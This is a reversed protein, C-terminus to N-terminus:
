VLDWYCPHGEISRAKLVAHVIARALTDAGVAGLHSLQAPGELAIEGTSVAFVVDGDFLTHVPRIARALGDHAMQAVKTAQSKSLRANTAVVGLTTNQGARSSKAPPLRSLNLPELAEFEGELGLFEGYLRGTRPDFVQGGPNLAVLAGVVLGGELQTSATGIGGKLLGAAAGAGAGVNGQELSGSRANKAAELGFSADPRGSWDGGRGLDFLVAAPVIPVVQGKGLDFGIGREELYRMVGTVSELGYASGGSLVLAHIHEILNEPRLLETERTGPSAGRVDVGAVTDGDFLLVTTGTAQELSTFHGVRIGKVDTLANLPGPHLVQTPQSSSSDTEFRTM